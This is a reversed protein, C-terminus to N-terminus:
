IKNRFFNNHFWSDFVIKLYAQKLFTNQAHMVSSILILGYRPVSNQGCITWLTVQYNYRGAFLLM